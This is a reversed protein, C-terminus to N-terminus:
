EVAQEKPIKLGAAKLDDVLTGIVVAPLTTKQQPEPLYDILEPAVERLRQLTTVSHLLNQIQCELNEREAIINVEDTVQKDLKALIGEDEIQFTPPNYRASQAPFPQPGSMEMNNCRSRRLAFIIDGGGKRKVNFSAHRVFWDSPHRSAVRRFAAPVLIKYVEDALKIRAQKITKERESFTSYVLGDCIYERMAKTLRTTSM